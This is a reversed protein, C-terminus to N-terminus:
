APGPMPMGRTEPPSLAERLHLLVQELALQLNLNRAAGREAAQIEDLLGLLLEPRADRADRQLDALRDRNLLHDPDAGLRVLLLDRVWRAIWDFAEQARDAKHLAEAATLLTAVSRLTRASILAAFEEQQKRVQAVDLRLALGLCGQTVM